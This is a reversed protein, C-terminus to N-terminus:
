ITTRLFQGPVSVILFLWFFGVGFVIGPTARPFVLLAPLTRRLPFRSRHAMMTALAVLVVTTAAGISAVLLSNTIARRLSPDNTLAQWNATTRLDWPPVLTTLNTVCSM